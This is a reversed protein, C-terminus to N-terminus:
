PLWWWTPKETCGRPEARGPLSPCLALCTTDSVWTPELVARAKRYGRQPGQCPGRHSSLPAEWRSQSRPGTEGPIWAQGGAAWSGVTLTQPNWPPRHPSLRAPTLGASQVPGCPLGESPPWTRGSRPPSRSMGSGVARSMPALPTGPGPPRLGGEGSAPGSRHCQLPPLPGSKGAGHPERDLSSIPHPSCCTLSAM